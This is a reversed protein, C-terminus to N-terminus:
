KAPWQGIEGYYKIAGPHYPTPLPITMGDPDFRALVASAKAMDDKSGHLLKVLKYIMDDSVSANAALFTPYGMFATPETVGPLQKSPKLILPRSPVVKQMAAIQEPKTGIPIFRVGGHSRLKIDAQRVPAIGAAAASADVKGDALAMIGKFINPVPYGKLDDRTLGGTALVARENIAVVTQSTFRSPARLGKLDEVKKVPSDAPVLYAFPLPFMVALMRLNTQPRGKFNDEGKFANIADSVSVMAIQVEGKNLLPIYTSTGSFPQVRAKIGMKENMLKAIVTSVRFYLSGQEMTGIGVTQATAAGSTIALAALALVSTLLKM